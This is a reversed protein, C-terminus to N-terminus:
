DDYDTFNKLDFPPKTFSKFKNNPDLRYFCLGFIRTDYIGNLYFYEFHERDTTPKYELKKKIFKADRIIFKNNIKIKIM